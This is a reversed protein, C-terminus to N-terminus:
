SRAWMDDYNVIVFKGVSYNTDDDSDTCEAEAPNTAELASQQEVNASGAQSASVDIHLKKPQYCLCMEPYKCFCSPCRYLIEGPSVSLVQHTNSIGVVPCVTSPLLSDMTSIEDEEVWKVNVRETNQCLYSFLDKPTQLDGGGHVYNDAICKLAGGVGDPAGKGHSWESFNWTVMIFTHFAALFFATQVIVISSQLVM